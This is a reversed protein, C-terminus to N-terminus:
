ARDCSGREYAGWFEAVALDELVERCGRRRLEEGKVGCGIFSCGLTQTARLDWVGDGVYTVQGIPADLRAAADAIIDCRRPHESSTVLPMWAVELKAARLKIEISERWDGTALAVPIGRARIDALLLAAEGIAPFAGADARLAAELRRCFGDRTAAAIAQRESLPRQAVAQHVVARATVEDITSFFDLPFPAGSAETFAVEFCRWDTQEGGILTGDIDFIIM